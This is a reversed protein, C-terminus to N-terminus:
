RWKNIHARIEDFNIPKEYVPVSLLNVAQAQEADVAGGSLFAFRRALEPSLALVRHYFDLGTMGPMNLDSVICDFDRDMSLFELAREAEPFAVIDADRRLARSIALLILEEDDVVLARPRERPFGM